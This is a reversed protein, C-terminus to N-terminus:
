SVAPKRPRTRSAGAAKRRAAGIRRLRLSRITRDQIQVVEVVIEGFRLSVAGEPLEQLAELALGTLTRPGDLPFDTGLRRNLTRLTASGELTVEGDENWRLGGGGGPATTTFEGIIEEIIDELTLLGLIEGYEDVVMAMRKRNEQFFQLQTFLPTGSPVFYPEDLQERLESADFSERSLLSIARRVHLVGAIRNVEGEHVPLKNHFCTALQQRIVQESTAIDLSEIRHRPIMVDDVTIDELEFLNILIARHKQPMFPASELVITRLEEVSMRAAERGTDVRMLALLRGVFLNITWVVPSAVKMLASLVFSAPLAIREPYTAGIVKPTIECFVIILLAVATTALLLTRDDDGFQRIALATVIATLATNAINNGLLITGLLKETQKLLDAALAAGRRGKKVLHGLRYRNLAMMSTEAISFFASLCLLVLLALLQAWFPIDEM